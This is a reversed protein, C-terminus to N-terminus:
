VNHPIKRRPDNESTLHWVECAQCYYPKMPKTRYLRALLKAKRRAERRTAFRVKSCM